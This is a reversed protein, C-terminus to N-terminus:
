LQERPRRLEVLDNVADEGRHTVDDARAHGSQVQEIHITLPKDRRAGPAYLQGADLSDARVPLVPKGLRQAAVVDDDM